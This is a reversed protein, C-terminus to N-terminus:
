HSLKEYRYYVELSLAGLATTFVRGSAEEWQREAPWSGADDGDKIQSPVLTAKLAENWKKWKEGGAQFLALTGYYWHYFNQPDEEM